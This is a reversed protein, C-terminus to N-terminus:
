QGVLAGRFMNLLRNLEKIGAEDLPNDALIAQVRPDALVQSTQMRSLMPHKAIAKAAEQVAVPAPDNLLMLGLANDVAQEAMKEDTTKTKKDFWQNNRAEIAGDLARKANLYAQMVQPSPPKYDDAGLPDKGMRVQYGQRGAEDIEDPTFSGSSIWKGDKWLQGPKPAYAALGSVAKRPGIQPETGEPVMSGPITILKNQDPDWIQAPVLKPKRIATPNIGEAVLQADEELGPTEGVMQIIRSRKADEDQQQASGPYFRVPALPTGDESPPGFPTETQFRGESEMRRLMEPDKIDEPKTGVRLGELQKRFNEDQMQAIQADTLQGQRKANDRQIGLQEEGQRTQAERASRVSMQEDEALKDLMARRSEERRRMLIEQLTAAVASGPTTYQDFQPM